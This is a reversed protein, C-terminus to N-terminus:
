AARAKLERFDQVVQTPAFATPVGALLFSSMPLLPYGDLKQAGPLRMNRNNGYVTLDV